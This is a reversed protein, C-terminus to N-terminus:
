DRPTIYLTQMSGGISGSPDSITSRALGIGSQEPYTVADLRIWEGEPLRHLYVSLDPNIFVWEGFELQSSIGSASDAAALVRTLPSPPEDDILPHRMRIWAVAPGPQLFSGHVFQWEMGEVYNSAYDAPFTPVNKGDAPSDPPSEITPALGFGLETTRISWATARMVEVGDASLSAQALQVRKGSRLIESKLLLTSVPVPRLIEFTIRAVQMPAPHLAEVARGLLASPPGAHQSDPGWPGRTWDTSRYRDDGLYEYFCDTM